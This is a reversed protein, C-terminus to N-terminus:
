VFRNCRSTYHRLSRSCSRFLSSGRHKWNRKHNPYQIQDFKMFTPSFTKCKTLAPVKKACCNCWFDGNGYANNSEQLNLLRPLLLKTRFRHGKSHRPCKPGTDTVPQM